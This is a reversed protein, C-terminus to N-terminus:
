PPSQIQPKVCGGAPKVAQLVCAIDVVWEEGTSADQFCATEGEIGWARFQAYPPLRFSGKPPHALDALDVLVSDKPDCPITAPALLLLSRRPHWAVPLYGDRVFVVGIASTQSWQEVVIQGEGEERGARWYAAFQGDASRLERDRSSGAGDALRSTCSAAPLLTAMASALVLICRVVTWRTTAGRERPTTRRTQRM